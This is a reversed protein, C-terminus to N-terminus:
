KVFSSRINHLSVSKQILQNKKAADSRLSITSSSKTVNASPRQSGQVSATSSQGRGTARGRTSSTVSHVQGVNASQGLEAPPGAELKRRDRPKPTVSVLGTRPRKRADLSLRRNDDTAPATAAAATDKSAAPKSGGKILKAIKSTLSATFGSDGNDNPAQSNAGHESRKALSSATANMLSSRRSTSVSRATEAKKSRGADTRSVGSSGAPGEGVSTDAGPYGVASTKSPRVPGLSQRRAIKSAATPVSQDRGKQHQRSTTVARQGYLPTETRAVSGRVNETGGTEQESERDRSKSAAAVASSSAVAPLDRHHEEEQRHLEPETAAPHQRQSNPRQDDELATTTTCQQPAATANERRPRTPPPAPADYSVLMQCGDDM